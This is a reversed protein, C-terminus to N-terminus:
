QLLTIQIHTGQGPASAITLTGGILDVREKMGALGFHGQEVLDNIASPMTFGRGDDKIELALRKGERHLSFQVNRAAAHRTINTLAEQVIHYLNVAIEDPLHRLDADPPLALHLIVGNQSAWENALARLAAGLGLADLMPPRLEACAHRMDALLQHVEGRMGQLSQALTDAKQEVALLLGLQLNLAVLSQVPGDHLDRALRAREEERSRLLRHQMTRIETLQRRLQEVLLINDLAIDAQHAVTRLIHIDEKSFDDGDRRPGVLWRARPQNQFSLTFQQPFPSDPAPLKQEPASFQSSDDGFELRGPRLQMLKAVEQTLVHTLQQRDLTRALENSITEVVGAYDYWGGYFIRDVVRQVRGRMEEFSFGVLMTLGVAILTQLLHDDPLFHYILIFPGLYLLLVALSLLVYVLARNLLRDIGFLNHRAIAILYSIPALALFPGMAWGPLRFSSGLIAPLLYFLLPPIGALVNGAVILRLRRRSDASARRIYSYLLVALAAAVEVTTCLVALRIWLPGWSFAGIVLIFALIYLPILLRRRQRSSGFPVPFTLTHHLLLPAALYFCTISLLVLGPPRVGKPFALLILVAVAFVQSLLFLIRVDLQRFRRWLLLTGTGWFTLAVLVGTLLPILNVKILPLVVIELTLRRGAREIEAKYNGPLPQLWQRFPVGEVALIVDDPQLGSWDGFSDQPVTLVRGSNEELLFDLTPMKNQKYVVYSILLLVLITLLIASWRWLWECRKAGELRAM